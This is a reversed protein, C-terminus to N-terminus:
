QRLVALTSMRYVGRSASLGLLVALCTVATSVLLVPAPYFIFPLSFVFESLLLGSIVALSSGVVSALLGLCLFEILM